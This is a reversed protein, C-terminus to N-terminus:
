FFIAGARQRDRDLPSVSTAALRSIGAIAQQMANMLIDSGALRRGRSAAFYNRKGRVSEGTKM